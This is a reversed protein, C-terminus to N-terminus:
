LLGGQGEFNVYRYTVFDDVGEGRQANLLKQVAGKTFNAKASYPTGLVFFNSIKCKVSCLMKKVRVAMDLKVDPSCTLTM